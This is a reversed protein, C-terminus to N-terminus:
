VTGPLPQHANSRSYLGSFGNKSLLQCAPSISSTFYPNLCLPCGHCWFGVNPGTRSGAIAPLEAHRACAGVWLPPGQAVAMQALLLRTATVGYLCSEWLLLHGYFAFGCGPLKGSFVPILHYRTAGTSVGSARKMEARYATGGNPVRSIYIGGANTDFYSGKSVRCKWCWINCAEFLEHKRIHHVERFKRHLM